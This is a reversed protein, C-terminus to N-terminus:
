FLAPTAPCARQGNDMTRQKGSGSKPAGCSSRLARGPRQRQQFPPHILVPSPRRADSPCRRDPKETGYSRFLGRRVQGNFRTHEQLRSSPAQSVSVQHSRLQRPVATQDQPLSYRFLKKHAIQAFKLSYINKTQADDYAQEAEYHARLFLISKKRDPELDQNLAGYVANEIDIPETRIEEILNSYYGNMWRIREAVTRRVLPHLQGSLTASSLILEVTKEELAPTWLVLMPELDSPHDFFLPKQRDKQPNQTM